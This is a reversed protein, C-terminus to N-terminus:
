KRTGTLIFSQREQPLCADLLKDDTSLGSEHKLSCRELENNNFRFENM